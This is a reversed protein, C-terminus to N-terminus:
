EAVYSFLDMSPCYEMVLYAMPELPACGCNLKVNNKLDLDASVPPEQDSRRKGLSTLKSHVLHPCLIDEPRRIIQADYMQVIGPFKEGSNLKSLSLYERQFFNYEQNGKYIKLM